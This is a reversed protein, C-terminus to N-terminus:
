NHSSAIPSWRGRTLYCGSGAGVINSFLSCIYNVRRGEMEVMEIESRKRMKVHGRGRDRQDGM